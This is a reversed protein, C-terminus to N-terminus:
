EEAAAQALVMKARQALEEEDVANVAQSTSGQEQPVGPTATVVVHETLPGAQLTLTLDGVPRAGAVVLTEARLDPAAAASLVYRGPPVSALHVRRRRREAGGRVAAERPHPPPHGCRRDRSGDARPRDGLHDGDGARLRPGARALAAPGSHPPRRHPGDHPGGLPRGARM